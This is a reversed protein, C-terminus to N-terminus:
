RVSRPTTTAAPGDPSTSAPRDPPTTAASRDTDPAEARVEVVGAGITLDLEFTPAGPDAPRDIRQVVGVGDSRSGFLELVGVETRARGTVGADDAVVVLLDGAGMSVEIPGDPAEDLQRLDVVLDGAGFSIPGSIQEVADITVTRDGVPGRLPIGLDTVLAATLTIAALPLALLSLWRARGAVSGVLLGLGLVALPVALLEVATVERLGLLDVSWAAGTLLSAVGLTLRGLPSRERPPAPDGDWPSPTPDAPPPTWAPPEGGEARGRGGAGGDDVEGDHAGVPEGIPVTATDAPRSAMLETGPTGPTAAAPAAPAAPAASTPSAPPAVPAVPATRRDADVWLAVGIGILLLPLLQGGGGPGVGLVWMGALTVLAIGVYFGAGREVERPRRRAAPQDAVPMVILLVLYLLVGFGPFPVFSLVVFGVRVLVPDLDLHAAIGAAVGGLLKGQRLRTMRGRRDATDPGTAAGAGGPGPDTPPASPPPPPATV